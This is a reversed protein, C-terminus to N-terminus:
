ARGNNCVTRWPDAHLKPNASGGYQFLQILPIRHSRRRVARRLGVRRLTMEQTMGLGGASLAAGSFYGLSLRSAQTRFMGENSIRRFSRGALSLSSFVGDNPIAVDSTYEPRWIVCKISPGPPEHSVNVYLASSASNRHLPSPADATSDDTIADNGRRPPLVACEINFSGTLTESSDIHSTWFPDSAAFYRAPIENIIQPSDGIACLCRESHRPLDSLSM